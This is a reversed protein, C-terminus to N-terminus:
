DSDSGDFRDIAECLEKRLRPLDAKLTSPSADVLMRMSGVDHEYRARRKAPGAATKRCILTYPRGKKDTTCAIDLKARRIEGELRMRIAQVAKFQITRQTPSECFRKLRLCHEDSCELPADISMDTPSPPLGSRVLLQGASHRWLVMAAPWDLLDPSHDYMERLALPIAQCPDAKGTHKRLLGVAKDAESDLGLVAGAMFLDRIAGADLVAERNRSSWGGEEQDLRLAKPLDRFVQKLNRRLIERLGTEQTGEGQCALSALLNAVGAIQRSANTQVLAWLSKELVETNVSELVSLLVPNLESLYEESLIKLLFHATLHPDGAEALLELTKRAPLAAFGRNGAYFFVNRREPWANLLQGVLPGLRKRRASPNSEAELERCVFDVAVAIGTRGLVSVTGSRPWIVLAARRYSRSVSAGGNGTAEFLTQSDPEAEDM